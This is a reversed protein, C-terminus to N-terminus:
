LRDENTDDMSLFSSFELGPIPLQFSDDQLYANLSPTSDSASGTSAGFYDGPFGGEGLDAPISLSMIPDSRSDTQHQVPISADSGLASGSSYTLVSPSGMGLGSGSSGSGMQDTAGFAPIGFATESHPSLLGPTPKLSLAAATGSSLGSGSGTQLAVGMSPAAGVGSELGTGSYSPMHSAKAMSERSTQSLLHQISDRLLYFDKLENPRLLLALYKELDPVKAVAEWHKIALRLIPEKGYYYQKALEFNYFIFLQNSHKLPADAIEKSLLAALGEHLIELIEQPHSKIHILVEALNCCCTTKDHPDQTLNKAFNLNKIALEWKQWRINIKGLEILCQSLRNRDSILSQAADFNKYAEEFNPIILLSLALHWHIYGRVENHKFNLTLAKQFFPIGEPSKQPLYKNVAEKAIKFATEIIVYEECTIKRKKNPCFEVPLSHAIKPLLRGGLIDSFTVLRTGPAAIAGSTHSSYAHYEFGPHSGFQHPPFPASSVPQTSFFTPISAQDHPKPTVRSSLSGPTFSPNSLSMLPSFPLAAAQSASGPGGVRSQTETEFDRARKLGHPQSPSPISSM